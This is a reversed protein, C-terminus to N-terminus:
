CSSRVYFFAASRARSCVSVALWALAARSPRPSCGFKAIFGVTLPIGAFSLLLLAFAGALVPTRRGLGAWQSLHTAEGGVGGDADRERVLTVVAFAASRAFGYVLLYFLVSSSAPGPVLVLGTLIFGAHAISSYALMRKIDTQRLAVVSGVVMTLAAIM